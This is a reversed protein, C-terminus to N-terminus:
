LKWERNTKAAMIHDEWVGNILLYDRSYGEVHFDLRRLLHGSRENRPMYNAAIRHLNRSEFGWRIIEQLAERMFGRGQHTESLTYGLIAAYSPSRTMQTLNAVGIIADGEVLVFRAASGSTFQQQIVPISAEWEAASFM